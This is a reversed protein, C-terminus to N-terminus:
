IRLMRKSLVAYAVVLALGVGLAPVSVVVFAGAVIAAFKALLMANEAVASVIAGAVTAVLWVLALSVQYAAMVLATVAQDVASDATMSFIM